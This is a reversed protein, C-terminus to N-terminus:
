LLRPPHHLDPSRDHHNLSNLGSHSEIHNLGSAPSSLPRRLSPPCDKRERCELEFYTMAHVIFVFMTFVFM